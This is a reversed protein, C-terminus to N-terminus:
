DIIATLYMFGKKMPIYTIDISLVQDAHTILVNRLLYPYIKHLKDPKSLNQKCYIAEFVMLRMLRRIRKSNVPVRMKKEVHERLRRVGYFPHDRYEKDMAKMIALNERSEPKPRYYYQSRSISLLSCQRSIGIHKNSPEILDRKKM